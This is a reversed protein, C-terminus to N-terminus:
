GEEGNEPKCCTAVPVESSQPPCYSQSTKHNEIHTARTLRSLSEERKDEPDPLPSQLAGLSLQCYTVEQKPQRLSEMARPLLMASPLDTNLAGKISMFKLLCSLYQTRPLTPSM